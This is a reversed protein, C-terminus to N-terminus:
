CKKEFGTSFPQKNIQKIKNMKENYTEMWQFNDYVLILQDLIRQFSFIERETITKVWTQM